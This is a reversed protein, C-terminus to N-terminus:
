FSSVSLCNNAQFSKIQFKKQINKCNVCIAICHTQDPYHLCCYWDLNNDIPSNELISLTINGNFVTQEAPGIQFSFTNLGQSIGLGTAKVFAEKLTWYEFFKAQQTGAPLKQLALYENESFYRRAISSVNIKRSLNEVDCGIDHNLCVTCIILNNNHSLNFRLPLSSNSLEPKGHETIEFKLEQANLDTYLSLVTRAFARTLLANHQAEPTRYRKVKDLEAESLLPKLANLQHPNTIQRPNISWLHIENNSLQQKAPPSDFFVSRVM